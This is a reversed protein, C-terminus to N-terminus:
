NDPAFIITKRLSIDKTELILTYHGAKGLEKRKLCWSHRGAPLQEARSYLLRGAADFVRLSLWESRELLFPLQVQESFPNPFPAPWQLRGTPDVEQVSNPNFLEIFGPFLEFDVPVTLAGELRGIEIETPDSSFELSTTDGFDGVARLRLTFLREDDDLTVGQLNFDFWGLTLLGGRIKGFDSNDLLPLNYKYVTDLELVTSDWRLSMQMSVIDEFNQTTIDVDFVDEKQVTLDPAILAVQARVPSFGWTLM